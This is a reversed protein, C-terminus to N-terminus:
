ESEEKKKAKPASLREVKATWEEFESRTIYDAQAQQPSTPQNSREVLDYIKMTPRGTADASKVYVCPALTDWLNVACNPCVPFSYAEQIGNVWVTGNQNQSQQMNQMQQNPMMQGQMPIMQNNNPMMQNQQMQQQYYTQYGM